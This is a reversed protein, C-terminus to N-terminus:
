AKEIDDENVWGYVNSGGGYVRVVHYPHKAGNVKYILTIRAKGAKAESGVNTNASLYHRGGKFMVIDGKQFETKKEQKQEQKSETRGKLAKEIAETTKKGVVGDVELGHDKQFKKVATETDGGFDGDAGYRGIDYGLKKLNNQLEKVKAGKSGKRLLSSANTSSPTSTTPATSVNGSSSSDAESFRLVNTWPYNFYNQCRIENGSQDGTMTNGESSRAHVLRGNGIFIAAHAETNLLIDGRKMGSDNAINCSSTVDKFGCAIFVSRMNGTYTAGGSKVPIGANQVVTIVLHGCDYDYPGWGGWEYGHSNDNAINIAEQTYQEVKSM